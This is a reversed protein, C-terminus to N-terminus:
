HKRLNNKVDYKGHCQYCLAIYDDPNRSYKHDINAWHIYHGNGIKGCHECKTAKGKRLKIFTHIARYSAKNGKWNPHKEGLLLGKHAKSIRECTEKSCKKGKRNSPKGLHALRINEKWEESFPPRKKGRWINGIKRKHKKSLPKHHYIGIPMYNFNFGRNSHEAEACPM